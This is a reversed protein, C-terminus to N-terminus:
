VEWQQQEIENDFIDSVVEFWYENNDDDVFHAIANCIDVERYGRYDWDSPADYDFSGVVGSASATYYIVVDIDEGDINVTTTLEEQFGVPIWDGAVFEPADTPNFHELFEPKNMLKSFEQM